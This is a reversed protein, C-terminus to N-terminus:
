LNPVSTLDPRPQGDEYYDPRAADPVFMITHSLGDTVQRLFTRGTQGTLEGPPCGNTTEAKYEPVGTFLHQWDARDKLGAQLLVCVAAPDVRGDTAYDCYARVGN